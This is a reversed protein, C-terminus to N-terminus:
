VKRLVAQDMPDGDKLRFLQIVVYLCTTISGLCVFSIIWLIATLVKKEKYIVWASIVAINFYFDVITTVFWPQSNLQPLAELLNSKLSTAIVLYVMYLSMGAFIIKLFLNNKM